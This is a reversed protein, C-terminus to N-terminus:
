INLKRYESPSVGMESRFVRGMYKANSFGTEAAIRSMSMDTLLLLSKIKGVRLARMIETFNKGTERKIQASLYEESVSLKRAIEELTIGQHYYEKIM